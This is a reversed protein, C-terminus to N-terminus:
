QTVLKQEQEALKAKEQAWIEVDEPKFGFKECLFALCMDLRVIANGQMTMVKGYEDFVRQAEERTLGGNWYAAAVAEPKNVMPSYKNM